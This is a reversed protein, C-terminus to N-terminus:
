GGGGDKEKDDRRDSLGSGCRFPGSRITDIRLILCPSLFANYTSFSKTSKHIEIQETPGLLTLM